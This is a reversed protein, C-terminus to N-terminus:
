DAASQGNPSGDIDGNDEFKVRPEVIKPDTLEGRVPFYALQELSEGGTNLIVAVSVHKRGNFSIEMPEDVILGLVKCEERLTDIVIDLWKSDGIQLEETVYVNGVPVSSDKPNVEYNRRRFPEKSKEYAEWATRRVRRLQQVVAVRHENQAWAITTLWIQKCAELDAWVQKLTIPDCLGHNHVNVKQWIEEFTFGEMQWRAM